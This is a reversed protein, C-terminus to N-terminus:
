AGLVKEFQRKAIETMIDKITIGHEKRVQQSYEQTLEKRMYKGVLDNVMAAKEDKGLRIKSTELQKGIVQGDLSQFKSVIEGIDKGINSESM